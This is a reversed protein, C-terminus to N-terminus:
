EYGKMDVVEDFSNLKLELVDGIRIEGYEDAIVILDNEDKVNVCVYETWGGLQVYDHSDLSEVSCVVTENDISYANSMVMIAVMVLSKVIKNM